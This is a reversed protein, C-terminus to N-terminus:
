HKWWAMAIAFALLVMAVFTAKVQRKGRPVM